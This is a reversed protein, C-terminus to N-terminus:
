APPEEKPLTLRDLPNMVTRLVNIAVHTDCRIRARSCGAGRDANCGGRGCCSWFSRRFCPM